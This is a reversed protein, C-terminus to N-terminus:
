FSCVCIGRFIPPTMVAQIMEFLCVALVAQYSKSIVDPSFFTDGFVSVFNKPSGSYEAIVLNLLVDPLTNKGREIALM